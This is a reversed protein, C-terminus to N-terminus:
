DSWKMVLMADAVGTSELSQELDVLPPSGPVAESLFFPRGAAAEMSVTLCWDHVCSLPSNRPFRRQQRGGDPFRVAASLYFFPTFLRCENKVFLLTM